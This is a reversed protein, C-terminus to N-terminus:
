KRTPRNESLTRFGFILGQSIKPTLFKYFSKATKRFNARLKNETLGPLALETYDPKAKKFCKTYVFVARIESWFRQPQCEFM